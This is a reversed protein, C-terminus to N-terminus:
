RDVAFGQSSSCIGDQYLLNHLHIMLLSKTLFPSSLKLFICINDLFVSVAKINLEATLSASSIRDASQGDTRRGDTRGDTLLPRRRQFRLDSQKSIQYPPEYCHGWKLKNLNHHFKCLQIKPCNKWNKTLFDEERFSCTRNIQFKTHLNRPTVRTLNTWITTFNAYNYKQAFKWNKTLVDERFGCTPNIQFKSYIKM